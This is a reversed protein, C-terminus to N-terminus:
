HHKERNIFRLDLVSLGFTALPSWKAKWRVRTSRIRLTMAIATSSPNMSNLGQTQVKNKIIYTTESELRKNVFGANDDAQQTAVTEVSLLKAGLQTHTQVKCKLTEANNPFEDQIPLPDVGRELRSLHDAVANEVGKKDRIELDFEELLLMWRILRSKADPKANLTKLLFKLAVHDSFIIIKSGLLYSHFKELAFVIALLGKEITTYNIQALDMTRSAYAIFDLQKSVRQGLVVGLASNSADCKLGFPYGCNPAPLIPTCTLRKKLEQFAEICHHDFVFDVDKQVLKSLPLTIMSFNKIFRVSTPNPLSTIINVKAKDVEIGRSSVLRGLVIGKTEASASNSEVSVSGLRGRCLCDPKTEALHLCVSCLHVVETESKFATFSPPQFALPILVSTL